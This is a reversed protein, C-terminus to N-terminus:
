AAVTVRNKVFADIKDAMEPHKIGFEEPPMADVDLLPHGLDALESDPILESATISAERRHHRDNGLFLLAPVKINRLDDESSGVVPQVAGALFSNMWRTMTAVFAEPTMALLIERNNPNDAIREAFFETKCVAEMDGLGAAKIYEAYYRVGLNIAAYPGGTIRWLVIGSVVEPHRHVVALATRCGSSSGGVICPAAGLHEILVALDDAWEDFESDGGGIGIDSKGCNRRDFILVRYGKAATRTAIDRIGDKGSRGGPILTMWPGGEGLIEYDINIGRIEANPM